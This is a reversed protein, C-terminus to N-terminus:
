AGDVREDVLDKATDKAAEVSRHVSDHTTRQDEAVTVRFPFDHDRDAATHRHRRHISVVVGADADFYGPPDESEIREFGGPAEDTASM